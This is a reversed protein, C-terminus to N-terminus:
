LSGRFDGEREKGGYIELFARTIKQMCVAAKKIVSDSIRKDKKSTYEGKFM